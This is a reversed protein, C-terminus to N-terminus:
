TKATGRKKAYVFAPNVVGHIAHVGNNVLHKKFEPNTRAEKAIMSVANKLQRTTPRARLGRIGKIRFQKVLFSLYEIMEKNHHMEKVLHEPVEGILIAKRLERIQAEKLRHKRAFEYLIKQINEDGHKKAELDLKNRRNLYYILAIGILSEISFLIVRKHAKVWTGTRKIFRGIRTTIKVRPKDKDPEPQLIPTDNM